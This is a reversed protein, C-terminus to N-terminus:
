ELRALHHPHRRFSLTLHIDLFRLIFIQRPQLPSHCKPKAQRFPLPPADRGSPLHHPRLGMQSIAPLPIFSRRRARRLFFRWRHRPFRRPSKSPHHRLNTYWTLPHRHVRCCRIWVTGSLGTLDPSVGRCCGGDVRRRQAGGVIAFEDEVPPLLRIWRDLGPQTRCGNALLAFGELARRHRHRPRAHESFQRQGCSPVCHM